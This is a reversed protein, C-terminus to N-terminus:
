KKFVIHDIKPYSPDNVLILNYKQGVYSMVHVAADLQGERLLAIHLSTLLVKTIMDIRGLKILWRLVGIMTQFYSAAVLELEPGIDSEPDYGMKILNDARKPLRFKGSFNTVLHAKYNRVAEQVSKVPSMACAWVGNPLRTQHLKAGLYM